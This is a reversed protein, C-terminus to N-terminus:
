KRYTQSTLENTAAEKISDYSHMTKKDFIDNTTKQKKPVSQRFPPCGCDQKKSNYKSKRHLM